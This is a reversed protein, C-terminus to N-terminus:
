HTRAISESVVADQVRGQDTCELLETNVGSADALKSEECVEGTKQCEATSAPLSLSEVVVSKGSDGASPTPSAVPTPQPSLKEPPSPRAPPGDDDSDVLLIASSAKSVPAFAKAKQERCKEDEGKSKAVEESSKSKVM